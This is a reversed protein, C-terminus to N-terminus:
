DNDGQYSPPARLALVALFETKMSVTIERVDQFLACFEVTRQSSTTAACAAPDISEIEASLSKRSIGTEFAHLGSKAKEILQIIKVSIEKHGRSTLLDDFGFGDVDGGATNPFRGRFVDSLASLRSVASKVALDSFPHELDEPCKGTTSVCDKHLGLPRALRLDKLEEVQFLGDSIANAAAMANPFAADSQDIFRRTFNRGKPSWQSALEGAQASVDKALRAALLCRDRRKESVPLKTWQIVQPYARVNCKSMMSKEFLLYELAGLGRVPNPLDAPPSGIGEKGRVTESDIGCSNFLPWSYLRAALKKGDAWIPGVPFSDIRHYALMARKWQGQAEKWEPTENETSAGQLNQCTQALRKELVSAELAFDAMAPAMVNIGINVLMKEESFSGLNPNELNAPLPNTDSRPDRETKAPFQGRGNLGKDSNFFDSCGIGAFAIFGSFVFISLVSGTHRAGERELSKVSEVQTKLM